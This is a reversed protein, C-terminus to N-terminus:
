CAARHDFGRVQLQTVTNDIAALTLQELHSRDSDSPVSGNAVKSLTELLSSILEESGPVAPSCIMELLLTLSPWNPGSAM